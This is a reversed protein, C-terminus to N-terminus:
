VCVFSLLETDQGLICCCTSLLILGGFKQSTFLRSEWRLWWWGCGDIVFKMMYVNRCKRLYTHKQTAM